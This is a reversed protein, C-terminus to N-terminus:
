DVYGLVETNVHHQNLYHIADEVAKKPGMIEALLLGFKVGGAYDIDSSLISIDIDFLRSIQSILPEDVTAGTFELRVLPYSGDFYTDQLRQAYDYPVSLDLTSRIFQKALDSKPHAFIEGVPGSEVLEGDGIIAVDHCIRKVVDM